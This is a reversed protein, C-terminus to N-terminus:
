GKAVRAFTELGAVDGALVDRCAGEVEVRYSRYDMVPVQLAGSNWAFLSADDIEKYPLAAGCIDCQWTLFPGFPKEKDNDKEDKYKTLMEASVLSTDTHKCAM